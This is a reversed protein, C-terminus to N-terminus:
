DALAKKKKRKEKKQVSVPGKGISVFDSVTDNM